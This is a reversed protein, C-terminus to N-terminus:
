LTTRYRQRVVVDVQNVAVQNVGCLTYLIWLHVLESVAHSINDMNFANPKLEM